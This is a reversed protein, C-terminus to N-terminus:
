SVCCHPMVVADADVVSARTERGSPALFTPSATARAKDPQENSREAWTTGSSGRPPAPTRPTRLPLHRRCSAGVGPQSHYPAEKQVQQHRPVAGRRRHPRRASGWHAPAGRPPLLDPVDFRAVGIRDDAMGYYVDFREPPGLDDRQDIGTPFVVNAITGAREEPLVPVLVPASSRYLVVRPHERSLVM